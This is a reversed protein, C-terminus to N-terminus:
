ADPPLNPNVPPGGAAAQEREAVVEEIVDQADDPAVGIMKAQTAILLQLQDRSADPALSELSHAYDALQQAPSPPRRGRGAGRVRGRSPRVAQGFGTVAERDRVQRIQELRPRVRRLGLHLAERVVESRTVGFMRSFEALQVVQKHELFVALKTLPRDM